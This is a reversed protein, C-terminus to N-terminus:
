TADDAALKRLQAAAKAVSYRRRTLGAWPDDRGLKSIRDRVTRVTFEGPALGTDAVEDWRLPVAVPAGPRGRVSYPAIVTQAFANRMVDGYVLGDRNDKRQQLTLLEPDRAALLGAAQRAFERAEDFGAKGDLMLHVHLGKGGTTKVFTTLGLGGELLERLALAARRAGDFHAGDPPDLDFVLQDPHDLRGVRSLFVHIEICAQNALYVLVAPKDCVVHQLCGGQKPVTARSIWSPFYRPVNKQFIREGAIGDPFRAMAIPRQRLYPLMLGAVDRYYEDLEGKTIQDDPFLVKSTNSLEVRIGGVTMGEAQRATM